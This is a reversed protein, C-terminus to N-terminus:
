LENLKEIEHGALPQESFDTDKIFELFRKITCGTLCDHLTKLSVEQRYLFILAEQIDEIRHVLEGQGKKIVNKLLKDIKQYMILEKEKKTL